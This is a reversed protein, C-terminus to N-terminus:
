QAAGQAKLHNTLATHYDLQRRFTGPDLPLPEEDLLRAPRDIGQEPASNRWPMIYLGIPSEREGIITTGPAANPSATPAPATSRYQKTTDVAPGSTDVAPEQALAVTAFLMSLLTTTIKM